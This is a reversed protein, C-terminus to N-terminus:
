SRKRLMLAGVIAVASIIAIIGVAMYTLMDSSTVIGIPTQTPTATQTPTTTTAPVPDILLGTAASSSGYSDDGAFTASITYTDAKTPTWKFTFVGTYPDSTITGLNTINGSSDTATIIVPIGTMTENHWIGDIPQQKYLYEMQTRMSADSVCPVNKLGIDNKLPAQTDAPAYTPSVIGPSTDFVTGQILVSTGLPQSSQPATVTTASTGIGFVYQYGDTCSVSIYGDDVASIAGPTTVNWIGQGSTANICWVSWGRTIPQTPTHETNYIYLMGDALQGAGNWSYVNTGNADTYPTEYGALTPAEFKWVQQGNDWNYAYIYNYAFRFFMGYGSAIAYAGFSMSGWPYDMVPSTKFLLNGTMQDFVDFTGDRMLIALKGHDAVDTTGSYMTVSPPNNLDYLSKEWAIQGTRLNIAQIHTGIRLGSANDATSPYSVTFGTNNNADDVYPSGMNVLDFFNVERIIYTMGTQFDIANGQGGGNGIIDARPYTINSIIRAAFNAYTATSGYTTWNILRYQGAMNPDAPNVGGTASVQQVSLAYGNMYYMNVLFYPISINASVAGTYPAYKVITGGLSSSGQNIAVLYATDSVGQEGGPVAALGVDYEIGSPASEGSFIPRQWYVQGTRLDYCQWYNLSTPNTTTPTTPYVGSVSQYCRGDFIINPGGGANTYEQSSGYDSGVVGSLAGERAWLIHASTPGQVYPTFSYPPSTYYNTNAPFNANLGAPGEWPYDGQIAAWERNEMPIPNTWYGNPLAAPPWSLIPNQQVNLTQWNTQGPMYYFSKTFLETFGSQGTGSGVKYYGPPFYSGPMQFQLQWTGLQDVVFEFYATSDGQYSPLTVTKTSKDPKIMIVTYNSMYRTLACSPDMWLNVMVTQGLGVPNPRFSMGLTTKITMDPTVGAPLPISGSPQIPLAPLTQAKAPSISFLSGAMMLLILLASFITNLNKRTKM